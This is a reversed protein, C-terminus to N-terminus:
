TQALPRTATVWLFEVLTGELDAQVLMATPAAQRALSLQARSV